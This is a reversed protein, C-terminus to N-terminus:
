RMERLDKSLDWWGTLSEQVVTNLVADGQGAVCRTEGQATQSTKRM